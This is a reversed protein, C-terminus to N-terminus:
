KAFYFSALWIGNELTIKSTNTDMFNLFRPFIRYAIKNFMSMRFILPIHVMVNSQTQQNSSPHTVLSWPSLHGAAMFPYLTSYHPMERFACM